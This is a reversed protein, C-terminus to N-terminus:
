GIKCLLLMCHLSNCSSYNRSCETGCCARAPGYTVIVVNYYTNRINDMNKKM